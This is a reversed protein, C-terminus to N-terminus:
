VGGTDRWGIDLGLDAGSRKVLDLLRAAGADIPKPPRNFSGHVDIRVDRKATVDAVAGDIAARARVIEDAAKPRFNVRRVALDPGVNNTGGGEMRAPNGARTRRREAGLPRFRTPYPFPIAHLTSRRPLRIM